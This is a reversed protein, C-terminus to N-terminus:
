SVKEHRSCLKKDCDVCYCVAKVGGDKCKDCYYTTERQSQNVGSSQVDVVCATATPSRPGDLDMVSM